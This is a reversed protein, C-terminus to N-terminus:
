PDDRWIDRAAEYSLRVILAADKVAESAADRKIQANLKDDGLHNEREIDLYIPAAITAILATYENQTM